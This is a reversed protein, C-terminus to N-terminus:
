QHPAYWSALGDQLKAGLAEPTETGKIAAVSAGWTENELNPTGRSLIQYTSRITSECEGRWGVFEQALPDEMRCTNEVLPLLGAARQRLDIRIRPECGLWSRRQPMPTRVQPM